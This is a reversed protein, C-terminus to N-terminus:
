QEEIREISTIFANEKITNSIFAADFIIDTSLVATFMVKDDQRSAKVRMFNTINFIEKVKDIENDINEFTIKLQMYRKSKFVKFPLHLICQVLIILVSAGVGLIYMGGGIAMGVGATVWVGAATTLGHVGSHPKFMIMGTGLFGVGAVIQAAVRAKDADDDFAYLSVLMLLCSGMAVLSHTRMGAEKFRLKREYGIAFGLLTAVVLRFIHHWEIM